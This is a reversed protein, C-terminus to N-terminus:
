ESNNWTSSTWCLSSFRSFFVFFSDHVLIHCVQAKDRNKGDDDVITVVTITSDELIAVNEDTSFFNIAFEEEDEPVRDDIIPILECSEQGRRAGALFRIPPVGFTVFDQFGSYNNYLPKLVVTVKM